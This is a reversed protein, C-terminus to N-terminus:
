QWQIYQNIEDLQQSDETAFKLYPSCSCIQSLGNRMATVIENQREQSLTKFGPGTTVNVTTSLKWQTINTVLQQDPDLDLMVSDFEQLESPTLELEQSAPAAPSPLEVPATPLSEHQAFTTSANAQSTADCSTNILVIIGLFPLIIKKWHGALNVDLEYKDLNKVM